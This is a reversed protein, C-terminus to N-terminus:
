KTLCYGSYAYKTSNEWGAPPIWRHHFLAIDGSTTNFFLSTVTRFNTEKDTKDQLFFKEVSNSKNKVLTIEPNAHPMFIKEPSNIHFKSDIPQYVFEFVIPETRNNIELIQNGNKYELFDGKVSCIYIKKYSFAACILIIFFTTAISAALILKKNKNLDLNGNLNIKEFDNSSKLFDCM